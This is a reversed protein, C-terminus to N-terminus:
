EILKGMLNNYAQNWNAERQVEPIDYLLLIKDILSVTRKLYSGAEESNSCFYTHLMLDYIGFTISFPAIQSDKEVTIRAGKNSELDLIIIGQESGISGLSKGFDFSNWGGYRIVQQKWEDIDLYSDINGTAEIPHAVPEFHKRIFFSKFKKFM